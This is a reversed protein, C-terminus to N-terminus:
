RRRGAVIAKDIRDSLRDVSSEIRAALREIKADAEARLRADEREMDERLLKHQAEADVALQVGASRAYWAIAQQVGQIGGVTAGVALVYKLWWGARQSKAWTRLPDTEEEVM